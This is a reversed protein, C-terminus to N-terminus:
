INNSAQTGAAIMSFHFPPISSHQNELALYGNKIKDDVGIEGNELGCDSISYKGRECEDQWMGAQSKHIRVGTQPGRDGSM